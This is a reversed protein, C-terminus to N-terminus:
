GFYSEMIKSFETGLRQKIIELNNTLVKQLIKTIDNRVDVLDKNIDNYMLNNHFENKAKTIFSESATNLVQNLIRILEIEVEELSKEEEKLIKKLKIM